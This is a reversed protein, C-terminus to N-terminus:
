TTEGSLRKARGNTDNRNILIVEQLERGLGICATGIRVLCPRGTRLMEVHGGRVFGLDALRKAAAEGATIEVVTANEGMSLASLQIPKTTVYNRVCPM